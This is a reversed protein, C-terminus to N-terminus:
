SSLNKRSTILQKRLSHFPTRQHLIWLLPGTVTGVFASSMCHSAIVALDLLHFPSKAGVEEIQPQLGAAAKPLRVSLISVSLGGYTTPKHHAYLMKWQVGARHHRRRWGRTRWELNKGFSDQIGFDFSDRHVDFKPCFTKKAKRGFQQADNGPWKNRGCSSNFLCTLSRLAMGAVWAMLSEWSVGAVEVTLNLHMLLHDLSGTWTVIAIVDFVYVFGVASLAAVAVEAAAPHRLLAFNEPAILPWSLHLASRRPM